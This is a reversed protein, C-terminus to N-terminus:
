RIKPNKYIHAELEEETCFFTGYGDVLGKFEETYLMGHVIFACKAKTATLSDLNLKSTKDLEVYTEDDIIGADIEDIGIEKLQKLTREKKKRWKTYGEVQRV